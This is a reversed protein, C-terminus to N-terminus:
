DKRIGSAHVFLSLICNRNSLGNAPNIATVFGNFAVNEINQFEDAELVEHISRLAIQYITDEFLDKKAKAALPTEKLEGTARVFRVTKVTPLDDPNPLEYEVLLTKDQSRYDLVFEKEILGHYDSAELVLSAHEM